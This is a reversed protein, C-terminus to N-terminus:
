AMRLFCLSQYVRRAAAVACALVVVIIVSMANHADAMASKM